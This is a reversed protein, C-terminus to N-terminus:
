RFFRAHQLDDLGIQKRDLCFIGGRALRLDGDIEALDLILVEDVLLVDDDGHGMRAVDLANGDGLIACLVAAAHADRRVAGLLVVEHLLHEDARRVVVDQEKGVEALHVGDLAVVNGFGGTRRAASCDDIDDLQARALLNGGDQGDIRTVASVEDHRGLLSEDFLRRRALELMNQAAALDSDADGLPVLEDGDLKRAALVLDDDCRM